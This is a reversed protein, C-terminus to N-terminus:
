GRLRNAKICAAWHGNSITHKEPVSETCAPESDRCRPAFACGPIPEEQKPPSGPITILPHTPYHHVMDPQCQILDRTYPHGPAAFVIRAAGTEVMRGHYMVSIRDAVQSILHLDHSILLLALGHREKMLQLLDLIQAQQTSDVASTPEDAILLLPNNCIALAIGVRQCMGGSLEFPYLREHGEAMGVEALLEMARDRSCRRSTRRHARITEVLHDMVTLVPNMASRTNQFIMAIKRSRLERWDKARLSQIDQEEFHIKGSQACTRNNLLGLLALALTSKGSGTEGALGLTEGRCIDLSVDRVAPITQQPPLRYSVSLNRVELLPAYTL